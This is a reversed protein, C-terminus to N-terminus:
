SVLRRGCNGFNFLTLLRKSLCILVLVVVFYINKATRLSFVAVTKFHRWIINVPRKSVLKNLRPTFLAQSLFSSYEGLINNKKVCLSYKRM